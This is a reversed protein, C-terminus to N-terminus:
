SRAGDIFTLKVSPGYRWSGDIAIQTRVSRALFCEEHAAHHLAAVETESPPKMGTFEVHPHLEVHSLWDKGDANRTLCGTASDTYRDVVYGAAAALSLFWLLHCSSLAAVFAEEPDVHASNSWPAPVAHPSSSAPVIVGGDFRWQHARHYRNGTFPEEGRTWEITATHLSM